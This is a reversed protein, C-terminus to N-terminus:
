AEDTLAGASTDASAGTPADTLADDSTDALADASVEPVARPTLAALEEPSKAALARALLERNRAQVAHLELFRRRTDQIDGTGGTETAQADLAMDMTAPMLSAAVIDTALRLLEADAQAIAAQIEHEKADRAMVLPDTPFLSYPSASPDASFSFDPNLASLLRTIGLTILGPTFTVTSPYAGVDLYVYWGAKISRTFQTSLHSGWNRERTNEYFVDGVAFGDETLLHMAIGTQHPAGNITYGNATASITYVGDEDFVIRDNEFHWSPEGFKSFAKYQDDFVVRGAATLKHNKRGYMFQSGAYKLAPHADWRGDASLTSFKQMGASMARPEPVLGKAGDADDTPPTFPEELADVRAVIGPKEPPLGSIEGELADVREALGTVDGCVRAGGFMLGGNEDADLRDLIDIKNNHEHSRGVAGDIADAGSAPAGQVDEWAVRLRMSGAEAIRTWGKGEGEYLYRAAGSEVGEDASADRVWCQDGVRIDTLADRAAIDDVVYVSGWGGVAEALAALRTEADGGDATRVQSATTELNIRYLNEGARQYLPTNIETVTM